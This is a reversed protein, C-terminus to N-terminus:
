GHRSGGHLAITAPDSVYVVWGSSRYDEYWALTGELSIWDGKLPADESAWVREGAKAYGGTELVYWPVYVKLLPYLHDGTTPDKGSSANDTMYMLYGRWSNSVRTVLGQLRVVSGNGFGHPLREPDLVQTLNVLEVPPDREVVLHKPSALIMYRLNGKVEYTGQIRVRQGIVPLEEQILRETITDYAKVELQGTGDDVTISLSGSPRKDFTESPYFAVDLVTGKIAVFAKNSTLGLDEIKVEPNPVVLAYAYLALLGFVSLLVAGYRVIRLSARVAQRMGCYPCAEAPGIFRGCAHCRAEVDDVEATPM